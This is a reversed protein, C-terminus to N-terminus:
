EDKEGFYYKKIREEGITEIAKEAIEKGCKFHDLIEDFYM